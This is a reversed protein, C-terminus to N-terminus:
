VRSHNVAESANKASYTSNQTSLPIPTVLPFVGEKQFLFPNEGQVGKGSPFRRAGDAGRLSPRVARNRQMEM